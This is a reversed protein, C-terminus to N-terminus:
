GGEVFHSLWKQWGPLVDWVMEAVRLLIGRGMEAVRAFCRM